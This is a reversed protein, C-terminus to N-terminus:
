FFLNFFKYLAYLAFAVIVFQLCGTILNFIPQWSLLISYISNLVELETM